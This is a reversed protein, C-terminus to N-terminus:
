LLNSIIDDFLVSSPSILHFRNRNFSRSPNRCFGIEYDNRHHQFGFILIVAFRHLNGGFFYPKDVFREFFYPKFLFGHFGRVEVDARIVFVDSILAARIFGHEFAVNAIM